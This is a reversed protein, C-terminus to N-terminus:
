EKGHKTSDEIEGQVGREPREDLTGLGILFEEESAVTQLVHRDHYLGHVVVHDDCVGWVPSPTEDMSDFVEDSELDLGCFVSFKLALPM